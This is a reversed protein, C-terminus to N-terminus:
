KMISSVTRELRVKQATFPLLEETHIKLKSEGKFPGSAFVDDDDKENFLKAIDSSVQAVDQVLSAMPIATKTLKEAELPNTYFGIDTRLRITQNLLFNTVVADKDDEDDVMAKLLLALGMLGLMLYLETMNKRINAADTKTFRDGFQTKQFMLKRALQKLTFLTDAMVSYETQMGFFKGVLGGLVAGGATGIGPLVATGIAAGSAALQGATYSRYRGKKIYPEESGYSLAYDINPTGDKNEGSEFRNAFGEFMWTRFQSIARGGFTSKIQLANNYDGHNMEVIRKIKQVMRLEDVDSTYGEKLKGQADYAEWLEVDEGSPNKATFEMMTAIMVPAINLYESREQLTFPGFRNLKSLSSKQSTDFLEKNSTQLLDWKDMLTRIKSATSNPDNFLTNFSLNKGISNTTLMYAKRLKKMSYERGDSAQIINSIAGFGINSFASFFNWGLGKLTMAKLVTDGTGSVTRYGGLADVQQQLFEKQSADPEQEIMAEIEKKRKAEEKTYLKTKTVGEIKRGGTGYYTSDLLFDWTSKLNALGEETAVDGNPTLQPEGAKNVVIQRRDQKIAQDLLKIQPEIVSKHKHALVTLSYAKLIKTVDWSKQKSLYDRAERSFELMEEVTAPVGTNQKHEISKLRVIDRVKANTDEIFQVQISKEIDKTNPNIDSYITSSQDTTTQLQKMKDWFPVVGMMLGKEKFIDMLNKQITPLVGVGLLGQKQQPLTYRLTNLMNIMYEHYALLDEDVEIKAFNVDYWKTPNGNVTKRPVQETYNKLGKPIYYGDKGKQRSVPNDMMDMNWYPSNERNWTEFNIEKEANSLKEDEQYKEFIAQRELKFREIKEEVRKIYFEYGKEGLQAKLENIHKQKSGEDFTVRKYIADLPVFGDDTNSDPFLIRPDFTITNEKTWNFYQKVKNKDIKIKKTVADRNSFANKMLQKRITFFEDSFRHVARGTEQGNATLQKLINFNGGSKKLFKTTLEDLMDWMESAEQVAKMNAQEIAYFGAALMPDKQRSQNLTLSATKSIDSISKFIEDQSLNESTFQQVFATTHKKRLATIQSQLDQAKAALARFRTRISPIVTGDSLTIDESSNFEDEDLFIHEHPETSFDGAKIWLDLVRGAYYVDRENIATNNLLQRVEALQKNGFAEVDEFAKINRSLLVRSEADELLQKLSDITALAKRMVSPDTEKKILQRQRIIESYIKDRRKKEVAEVESPASPILEDTYLDADVFNKFGEIDQKSGLIHIQEPEFVAAFVLEEKDALQKWNDLEKQYNNQIEKLEEKSFDDPDIDPFQPKIADLDAGAEKIYTIFGDSGEVQRYGSADIAKMFIGHSYKMPNKLDLVSAIKNGKNTYYNPNKSFYIGDDAGKVLSQESPKNFKDGKFEQYTTHYVIDKVKSDPFITDLYQSYQEQTGINTLEPNSDFLEEVESKVSPLDDEYLYSDTYEKGARRADEEQVKRAEEELPNRPIFPSPTTPYLENFETPNFEAVTYKEPNREALRQRQKEVNVPLYNYKLEVEFTNGYIKKATYYHSTGHKKNYNRLKTKFRTLDEVRPKFGLETKIEERTKVDPMRYGNAIFALEALREGTQKVMIKWERSNKNACAKEM